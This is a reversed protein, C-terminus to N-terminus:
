SSVIVVTTDAISYIFTLLKKFWKFENFNMCVKFAKLIDGLPVPLLKRHSLPVTLLERHSM